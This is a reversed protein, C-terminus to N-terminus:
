TKPKYQFYNSRTKIKIGYNLIKKQIKNLEVKVSIGM